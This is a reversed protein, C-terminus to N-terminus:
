RGNSNSKGEEKELEATPDAETQGAEGAKEPEVIDEEKVPDTAPVAEAEPEPQAPTDQGVEPSPSLDPKDEIDAPQHESDSM